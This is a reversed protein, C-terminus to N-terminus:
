RVALISLWIICEAVVMVAAPIAITAELTLM